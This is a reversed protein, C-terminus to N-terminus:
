HYESCQLFPFSALLQLQESVLLVDLLLVLQLALLLTILGLRSFLVTRLGTQGKKLLRMANKQPPAAQKTKNKRSPRHM